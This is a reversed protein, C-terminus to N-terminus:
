RRSSRCRRRRRCRRCRADGGAAAGRPARARRSRRTSGSGASTRDAARALLLQFLDDIADGGVLGVEEALAVLEVREAVLDQGLEVLLARAALAQADPRGAAGRAFLRVGDGDQDLLRASKSSQSTRTKPLSMERRQRCTPACPRRRGCSTGRWRRAPEQAAVEALDVALLLHAVFHAREDAEALDVQDVVCIIRRTPSTSTMKQRLTSM